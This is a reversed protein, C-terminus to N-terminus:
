NNMTRVYSDSPLHAYAYMGAARQGCVAGMMFLLLAVSTPFLLAIYKM